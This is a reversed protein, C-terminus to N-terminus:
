RARHPRSKPTRGRRRHCRKAPRVTSRLTVSSNTWANPGPQNLVALRLYSPPTPGASVDLLDVAVKEHLSSALSVMPDAFSLKTGAGNGLGGSGHFLQNSFGPILVPLIVATAIACLSIRRGTSSLGATDIPESQDRGSSRAVHRGWRALRERESLMLLALYAAAGPIFVLAPVGDPLSAVPVSYLALLPLGALPARDLGVAFLDVVIAVVAIFGVTMLTLGPSPPVPAAYRQAVDIGASLTSQIHSFSAPTPLVAYKMHHGYTLILLEAVALLQVVCTLLTPLRFQRFLM